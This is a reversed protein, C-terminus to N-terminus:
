FNLESQRPDYIRKSTKFVGVKYCIPCGSRNKTRGSIRAEWEHKNNNKCQWWVKKSSFKRM